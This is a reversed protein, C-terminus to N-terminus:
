ESIICIDWEEDFKSKLCQIWILISEHTETKNLPNYGIVIMKISVSNWIQNTPADELQGRPGKSTDGNKM